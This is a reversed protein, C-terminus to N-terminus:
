QVKSNMVVGTFSKVEIRYGHKLINTPIMFNVEDNGGNGKLKSEWVIRNKDMVKITLPLVWKSNKISIYKDSPQFTIDGNFLDDKSEKRGINYHKTKPSMDVTKVKLSIKEKPTPTKCGIISMSIIGLIALTNLKKM